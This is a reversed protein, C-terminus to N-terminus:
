YSPIPGNHRSFHREKTNLLLLDLWGSQLVKRWVCYVKDVQNYYKADVGILKTLRFWDCNVLKLIKGMNLSLENTNPSGFLHAKTAYFTKDLFFIILYMCITIKKHSLLWSTTPCLCKKPCGINDLWQNKDHLDFM